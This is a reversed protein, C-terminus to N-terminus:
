NVSIDALSLTIGASDLLDHKAVGDSDVRGVDVVHTV